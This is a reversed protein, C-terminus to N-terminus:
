VTLICLRMGIRDLSKDGPVKRRLSGSYLQSTSACARTTSDTLSGIKRHTQHVGASELWYYFADIWHDSSTGQKRMGFVHGGASFIHAEPNHGALKLAGYFEVVPELAL